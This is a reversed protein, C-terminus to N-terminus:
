FVLAPYPYIGVTAEGRIYSYMRMVLPAACAASTAMYIYIYISHM